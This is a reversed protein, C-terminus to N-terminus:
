GVEYFGDYVEGSFSLEKSDGAYSQLLDGVPITFLSM